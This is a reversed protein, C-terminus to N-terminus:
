NQPALRCNKLSEESFVVLDEDYLGNRDIPTFRVTNAFLTSEETKRCIYINTGDTFIDGDKIETGDSLKM